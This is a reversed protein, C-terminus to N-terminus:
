KEYKIGGFAQSPPMRRMKLLYHGPCKQSCLSQVLETPGMALPGPYQAEQVCWIGNGWNDIWDWAASDHTQTRATLVPSQIAENWRKRWPEYLLVGNRRYFLSWIWPPELSEFFDMVTFFALIIHGTPLPASCLRSRRVWIWRETSEHHRWTNKKKLITLENGEGKWFKGCYIQPHKHCLHKLFYM